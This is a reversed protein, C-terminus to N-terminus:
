ELVCRLINSDYSVVNVACEGMCFGSQRCNHSESTEINLLVLGAGYFCNYKCYVSKLIM